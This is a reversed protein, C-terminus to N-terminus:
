LPKAYSLDDASFGKAFLLCGKQWNFIWAGHTTLIETGNSQYLRVSYGIGFKQPQLFNVITDSFTSGFISKSFWALGNSALDVTLFIRRHLVSSGASVGSNNNLTITYNGGGNNVVNTISKVYTPNPHVDSIQYGIKPEFTASIDWDSGNAVLTIAQGDSRDEVIAGSNSQAQAKNTAYPVVDSWIDQPVVIHTADIAEEYWTKGPVSNSTGLIGFLHKWSANIKETNSFDAM